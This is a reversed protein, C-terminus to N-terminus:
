IGNNAIWDKMSKVGRYHYELKRQKKKIKHPFPPLLGFNASMPQFNKGDYGTVYQHLAGMITDYPPCPLNPNHYFLAALLGSATSEMYGEVGTIQGAFRIHPLNKLRLHPDLVHPSDIYTNRHMVGLRLFEANELGPILRFVREQESFTMRTQFGVLNYSAGHMDEKRLQVVAFPQKGSSPDVLGVPRLPGFALTMEGRKAMQEIPMCGEFVSINEFDKLSVLKASLIENVFERYQEKNMPCNLYDPDGKGYRSAAFVIEYDITEADVIPSTADFFHLGEGTVEKIGVALDDSTLPGSAVITDKEPLRLIEESVMEISDFSSLFRKVEDSLKHRDVALASGAPVRSFDAARLILSDALRMESKLLARASGETDSGLSNSCVLEAPGDIKHAPSFRKPKMEFLCVKHGRKALQYAAECGALGAGIIQIM